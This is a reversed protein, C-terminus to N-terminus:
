SRQRKNYKEIFSKMEFFNKKFPPKTNLFFFVFLMLMVNIFIFGILVGIKLFITANIFILVLSFLPMVFWFYLRNIIKYQRENIVIKNKNMSIYPTFPKFYRASLENELIIKVLPERLKYYFVGTIEYNYNANLEIEALKKTNISSYQNNIIEELKRKKLSSLDKSYLVIYNFNKSIFFVIFLSIVSSLGVGSKVMDLLELLEKM